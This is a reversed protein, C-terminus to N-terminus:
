STLHFFEPDLLDLVDYGGDLGDVKSELFWDLPPSASPCCSPVSGMKLM